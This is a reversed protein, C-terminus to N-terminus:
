KATVTQATSPLGSVKFGNYWDGTSYGNAGSHPFFAINSRDSWLLNYNVVYLDSPIQSLGYINTFTMRLYNGNTSIAGDSPIYTSVSSSSLFNNVKAKLIYTANKGASITEEENFTLVVTNAGVGIGINAMSVSIDNVDNSIAVSSTYDSGNKLFTFNTLNPYSNKPDSISIKFMIQKISIDGNQDAAVNFTYLNANSGDAVSASSAAATFIPISKFLYIGNVLVGVDPLTIGNYRTVINNNYNKAVGDIFVGEGNAAKVYALTPAMNLNTGVSTALANLDYYLTLSKSSNAPVLVSLNFDLISFGNYYVTSTPKPSSPTASSTDSLVAGSIASAFQSNPVIFKLELITYSDNTSTFQFKGAVVRQGMSVIKLAPTSSDQGVAFSSTGFSINQGALVVNSNTSVATGSIVSVGSALVSTNIASGTPVSSNIDGYISLDITKGAALQSDVSLYNNHSVAGLAGTQKDGCIAYLNTIYNNAVYLNSGIAFDVEITKLNITETTNNKLTFGALRLKTKPAMVTQNSYLADQSLDLSGTLSPLNSASLAPSAPAIGSLDTNIAQRTLPGVYGTSNISKSTQYKKVGGLTLSFFNGTASGTFFGKSILYQQLTRVDNNNKLGYYLNANLSAGAVLPIFLFLLFVSLINTAKM